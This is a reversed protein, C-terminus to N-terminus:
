WSIPEIDHEKLYQNARTFPKSGFWGGRNASLPSPHVSEIIHHKSADIYMKLSKAHRGWLLFVVNERHENIVEIVDRVLRKWGVSSHSGASGAIVTLSTNLLLVGQEAWDSLDGNARKTGTDDELERFINVLSAPLPAAGDRSSFALGHAYQPNEQHYPDQGFIVVKVEDLPTLAFANLINENDPLIIKGHKREEALFEVIQKYKPTHFFEVADLWDM